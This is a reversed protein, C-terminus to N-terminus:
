NEHEHNKTNIKIYLNNAYIRIKINENVFNFSIYLNFLIFIYLMIDIKLFKMLCQGSPEWNSLQM